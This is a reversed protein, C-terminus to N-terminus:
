RKNKKELRAKLVEVEARLLEARDAARAGSSGVAEARRARSQV